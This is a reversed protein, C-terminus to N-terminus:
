AAGAVTADSLVSWDQGVPRPSSVWSRDLGATAGAGVSGDMGGM